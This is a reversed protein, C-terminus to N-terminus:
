RIYKLFKFEGCGAGGGGGGGGGGAGGGGGGAGCGGGGGGCWCWVEVAVVVDRWHHCFVRTLDGGTKVITRLWTNHLIGRDGM